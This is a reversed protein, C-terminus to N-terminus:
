PSCAVASQLLRTASTKMRFASTETVNTPSRTAASLAFSSAQLLLVAAALTQEWDSSDAHVFAYVSQLVL